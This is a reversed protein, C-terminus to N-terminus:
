NKEPKVRLAKFIEIPDHIGNKFLEIIGCDMGGEVIVICREEDHRTVSLALYREELPNYIVLQNHDKTLSWSHTRRHQYFECITLPIGRYGKSPRVNEWGEEVLEDVLTSLKTVPRILSAACLGLRKSKLLSCSEDESDPYFVESQSLITDVNYTMGESLEKMYETANKAVTQFLVLRVWDRHEEKSVDGIVTYHVDLDRPFGKDPELEKPDLVSYGQILVPSAHPNHAHLTDPTFKKPIVFVVSGVPPLDLQEILDDSVVHVRSDTISFEVAM